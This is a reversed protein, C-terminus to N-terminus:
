KGGAGGGGEKLLLAELMPLATAVELRAEADAHLMALAVRALEQPGEYSSINDSSESGGACNGWGFGWSWDELKPDLVEAISGQAAGREGGCSSM